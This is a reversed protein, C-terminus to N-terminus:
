RVLTRFRQYGVEWADQDQPQYEGTEISARVIARAADLDPIAGVAMAQCVINGLATAEGPGTIVPRGIANATFQNLVKNRSGGGVLHLIEIPQGTIEEIEDLTQRYRLALSELACRMVQGPTTPEPQGTRACYAAIRSPMDGPAVFMEDNPDVISRFPEEVAALEDLADWGQDNGQRKWEARCEQILWLGMINKLFRIKGDIGGENTYNAALAAETMLPEDLEVGLLSWTGSSLYAWSRGAEAPVAAVACATDHSGALIVPIPSCNLEECITDRLQGVTTCPAAIPPFIHRPLGLADIIDWAWDGADPDYIQGTTAITYEASVNGSFLYTFANPMMLLRDAVPLLPDNDREMAALQFITNISMFQIGTRAYFRERDVKGFAYDLVTATRPDRYHRPFGLFAGTSDLLAFDVGWTDVAMGSLQVGTALAKRLGTKMEAFLGLLNWYLSGNIDVPGNEFRHVDELTIVGDNLSGIIARGSSAGLDFALFHEM